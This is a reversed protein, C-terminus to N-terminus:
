MWELCNNIQKRSKLLSLIGEVYKQCRRKHQPSLFALYLQVVLLAVAAIRQVAVKQAVGAVELVDLAAGGGDGGGGILLPPRWRTSSHLFQWLTVLSFNISVIRTTSSQNM